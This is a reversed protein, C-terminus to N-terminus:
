KTKPRLALTFGLFILGTSTWTRLSMEQGMWAWALLTAVVPQLYIFLAVSSSRTYALAWLNLFYTLLTGGIIGFAMCGLLLPTFTPLQFHSWDPLSLATIGVSGYAFLWATTWVRDHRELFKKAFSLFLAYSLCNLITLLDGIVTKNSLSLEEVRRLVLVGAGALIFGFFRGRTLPEQGRFTVILLTFVPILTNLVASNTSTTYRLGILFSSQNIIIGLLAFGILPLFFRRTRPPHLKRRTALAFAFMIATAIVIRFSAWVLPPLADVVVKSAVYNIGFLVQVTILAATVSFSSPLRSTAVGTASHTSTTTVSM